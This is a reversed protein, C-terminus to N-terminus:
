DLINLIKGLIKARGGSPEALVDDCVSCKVVSTARDFITQENGCNGCQVLLFKSRPKQMLNIWNSM